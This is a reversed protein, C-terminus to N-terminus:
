QLYVCEKVVPPIDKLPKDAGEVKGQEHPKTEKPKYKQRIQIQDKHPVFEEQELEPGQRPEAMRAREEEITFREIAAQEAAPKPKVPKFRVQDRHVVQAEAEPEDLQTFRGTPEGLKVEGSAWGPLAEPERSQSKEALERLKVEPVRDYSPQYRSVQGPKLDVPELELCPPFERQAKEV